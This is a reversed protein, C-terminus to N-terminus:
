LFSFLPLTGTVNGQVMCWVYFRVEHLMGEVYTPPKKKYFFDFHHLGKMKSKDNPYFSISSNKADNFLRGPNKSAFTRKVCWAKTSCLLCPFGL